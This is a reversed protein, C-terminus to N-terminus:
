KSGTQTQTCPLLTIFPIPSQSVTDLSATYTMCPQLSTHFELLALHLVHSMTLSHFKAVSNVLLSCQTSHCLVTNVRLLRSDTCLSNVKQMRYHMTDCAQSQTINANDAENSIKLKWNLRSKKLIDTAEGPM